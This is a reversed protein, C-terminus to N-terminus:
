CSTLGTAVATYVQMEGLAEAPSQAAFVREFIIYATEFHLTIKFTQGQLIKGKMRVELDYGDYIQWSGFM